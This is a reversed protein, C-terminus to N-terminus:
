CLLRLVAIDIKSARSVWCNQFQRGPISSYLKRSIEIGNVSTSPDTLVWQDASSTQTCPIAPTHPELTHYDPLALQQDSGDRKVIATSVDPMQRDPHDCVAEGGSRSVREITQSQEYGDGHDDSITAHDVSGEAALLKIQEAQALLGIYALCFCGRKAHETSFAPAQRQSM